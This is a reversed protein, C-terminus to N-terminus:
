IRTRCPDCCDTQKLLVLRCADHFLQPGHGTMLEEYRASRNDPRSATAADGEGESRGGVECARAPAITSHQEVRSASSQEEETRRRTGHSDRNGQRLQERM